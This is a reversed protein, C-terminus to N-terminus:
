PMIEVYEYVEADLLRRRQAVPLRAFWAHPDHRDIERGMFRVLECIPEVVNNRYREDKKVYGLYLNKMCNGRCWAYAECGGCPMDPHPQLPSAALWNGQIEGMQMAPAYMM